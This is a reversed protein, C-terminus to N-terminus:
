SFHKEDEGKQCFMHLASIFFGPPHKFGNIGSTQYKYITTQLKTASAPLLIEFNARRMQMWMILMRSLVLMNQNSSSQLAKM